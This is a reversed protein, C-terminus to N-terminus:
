FMIKAKNKAGQEALSIWGLAQLAVESQGSENRCNRQEGIRFGRCAGLLALSDWSRLFKNDFHPQAMANYLSM